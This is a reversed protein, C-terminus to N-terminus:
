GVMFILGEVMSGLGQVTVIFGEFAHSLGITDLHAHGLFYTTRPDGPMEELDQPFM